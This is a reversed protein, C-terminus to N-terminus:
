GPPAIAPATKLKCGTTFDCSWYPFLEIMPSEDLRVTVSENLLPVPGNCPVAESSMPVLAPFPAAVKVFRRISAVPTLCSVAVLVLRVFATLLVNLTVVAGALRRVIWVCGELM